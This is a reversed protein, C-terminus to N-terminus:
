WCVPGCTLYKKVGTPTRERGARERTRRGQEGRRCAAGEVAGERRRAAGEQERRRGGERHVARRPRGRLAAASSAAARRPRGRPAAASSAAARRDGPPPGGGADRAPAGRGPAGAMGRELETRPWDRRCELEVSGQRLTWGGEMWGGRGVGRERRWGDLEAARRRPPWPGRRGKLEPAPRIWSGRRRAAGEAPRIWSGRGQKALSPLPGHRSLARRGGGAAMAPRGRRTWAAMAPHLLSRPTARGGGGPGPHARPGHLEGGGGPGRRPPAPAWGGARARDAPRM